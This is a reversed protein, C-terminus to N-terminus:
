SGEDLAGHDLGDFSDSCRFHWIMRQVLLIFGINWQSAFCNANPVKANGLAFYVLMYIKCQTDGLAFGWCSDTSYLNRQTGFAFSERQGRVNIHKTNIENANTLWRLGIKWHFIPKLTTCIIDFAGM